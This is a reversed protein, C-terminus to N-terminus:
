IPEKFIYTIGVAFSLDESKGSIFNPGATVFAINLLWDLTLSKSAVMSLGLTAQSKAAKRGRKEIEVTQYIFGTSSRRQAITKERYGNDKRYNLLPHNLGFRLYLFDALHAEWGLFLPLQDLYFKQVIPAKNGYVTNDQRPVQNVYDYGNFDTTIYERQWFFGFFWLFNESHKIENSFGFSLLNGKRLYSDKLNFFCDSVVLCGTNNESKAIAESSTDFWSYQFRFHFLNNPILFISIKGQVEQEYAGQDKLQALIQRNQLDKEDYRNQLIYREYRYSLDFGQLIEKASNKYAFGISFPLQAKTLRIEEDVQNTQRIKKEQSHAFGVRLGFIWNTFAYTYFLELNKTKLINYNPEFISAADALALGSSNVIATNIRLYQSPDIFRNDAIFPSLTPATYFFSKPHNPDQFIPESIKQGLLIGLTHNEQSLFLGGEAKFIGDFNHYDVIFQSEKFRAFAPNLYIQPYLGSLFWSTDRNLSFGATRTLTPLAPQGTLGFVM